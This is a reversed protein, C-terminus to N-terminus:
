KSKKVFFLQQYGRILIILLQYSYILTSLFGAFVMFSGFAINKIILNNIFPMGNYLHSGLGIICLAIVLKCILYKADKFNSM